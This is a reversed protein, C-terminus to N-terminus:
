CKIGRGEIGNYGYHVDVDRLPATQFWRRFTDITQREDYAPSLMDFTDLVSWELLLEESLDYRGRYDMVLLM